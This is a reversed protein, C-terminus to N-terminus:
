CQARLALLLARESVPKELRAYKSYATGIADLSFGTAFVFPIGRAQLADAIQYSPVGHLDVDLIAFDFQVDLDSAVALAEDLWGIPGIPSAGAEELMGVTDTAIVYDDEVVLVRRGALLNM